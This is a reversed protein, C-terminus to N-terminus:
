QLYLTSYRERVDEKKSRRRVNDFTCPCLRERSRGNVNLKLWSHRNKNLEIWSRENVHINKFTFSRLCVKMHVIWKASHESVYRFTKTFSHTQIFNFRFSREQIFNFAISRECSRKMEGFTWIRGFFKWSRRHVNLFPLHARATYYIYLCYRVNM